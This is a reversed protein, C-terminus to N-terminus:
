LAASGKEDMVRPANGQRYVISREKKFRVIHYNSKLLLCLERRSLQEKTMKLGRELERRTAEQAPRQTRVFRAISDADRFDQWGPGIKTRSKLYLKRATEEMMERFNSQKARAVYIELSDVFDPLVKERQLESLIQRTKKLFPAKEYAGPEFEYAWQGAIWHKSLPRNHKLLYEMKIQHVLSAIFFLRKSFRRGSKKQKWFCRVDSICGARHPKQNLGEWLKKAWFLFKQDDESSASILLSTQSTDGTPSAAKGSTRGRFHLQIKAM